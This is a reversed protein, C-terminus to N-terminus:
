SGPLDVRRKSFTLAAAVLFFPSVFCAWWGVVFFFAVGAIALLVAAIIPLIPALFAGATGLLTVFLGFFFHPVDQTLGTVLGLVHFVAYLITVVLALVAGILGVIMAVTRMAFRGAREM